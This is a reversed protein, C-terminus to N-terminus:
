RKKFDISGGFLYKFALRASKMQPNYTAMTKFPSTQGPLIPNYKILADDSTILKGDSTYFSAVVLVNELRSDSRNTVEGEVIAYGHEIHWRWSEVVLPITHREQEEVQRMAEAMRRERAQRAAEAALRQEEERKRRAERKRKLRKQKRQERADGIDALQSEALAVALSDLGKHGFVLEKPMNGRKQLKKFDVDSIKMLTTRIFSPDTANDIQQVLRNAEALAEAHPVVLAAQLKERAADIESADIADVADAVLSEVKANAMRVRLQRIPDLKTANEVKSASRLM